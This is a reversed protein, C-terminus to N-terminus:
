FTFNSIQCHCCTVIRSHSPLLVDVIADDDDDDDGWKLNLVVRTEHLNAADDANATADATADSVIIDRRSRM